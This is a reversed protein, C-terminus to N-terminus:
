GLQEASTPRSGLLGAAPLQQHSRAILLRASREQGVGAEAALTCLAQEWLRHREGGRASLDKSSPFCTFLPALVRDDTPQKEERAIRRSEDLQGM